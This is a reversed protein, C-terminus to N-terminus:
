ENPEGSEREKLMADAHEYALMAIVAPSYKAVSMEALQAAHELAQPNLMLGALAQGAFHDRLSMEM